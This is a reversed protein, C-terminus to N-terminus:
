NKDPDYSFLDPTIKLIGNDDPQKLYLTVSTDKFAKYDQKPSFGRLNNCTFWFSFPAAGNSFIGTNQMSYSQGQGVKVINDFLPSNNVKLVLRCKKLLQNVFHYGSKYDLQFIFEGDGTLNIFGQYYLGVDRDVTARAINKDVMHDIFTFYGGKNFPLTAVQLGEPTSPLHKYKNKGLSYVDLSLGKSLVIPHFGNDINKKMPEQVANDMSKEETTDQKLYVPTPTDIHNNTSHVIPEKIVEDLNSKEIKQNAIYSNNNINLPTPNTFPSAINKRENNVMVLIIFVFFLLVILTLILLKSSFKPKYHDFKSAEKDNFELEQPAHNIEPEDQKYNLKNLSKINEIESFADIWLQKVSEDCAREFLLKITNRGYSNPFKGKYVYDKFSDESIARSRSVGRTLKVTLAAYESSSIGAFTIFHRLLIGLDQTKPPPQTVDSFNEYSM